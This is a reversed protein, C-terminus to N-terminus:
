ENNGHSQAGAVPPENIKTDTKNLDNCGSSLKERELRSSRFSQSLRRHLWVAATALRGRYLGKDTMNRTASAWLLWDRTANTYLEIPKAKEDNLLERLLEYLQIHGVAYQRFAEDHTTKLVIFMTPGSILLRSAALRDNLYLEWVEGSGSEALTSLLERYFRGQVNTPHLASGEAGKWGRSELEGYRDVANAVLASNKVRANRVVLGDREARRARRRVNDQLEKPRQRWYSEFGDVSHITVTTWAGSDEILSSKQAELLSFAPDQRPLVIELALYSLSTFLARLATASEVVNRDFVLLGIPSQSPCFVRWRGPASPHLLTQVVPGAASRLQAGVIGSPGFYKILTRVTHSRLAPHGELHATNLADWSNWWAQGLQQSGIVAWDNAM